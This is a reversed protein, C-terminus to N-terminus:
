WCRAVWRRATPTSASNSCRPRAAMSGATITGSWSLAAMPWRPSVRRDQANQTTTNVPIEGGVPTGNAEFVRAFVGNSSGDGASGSATSTWTVVVRGGSLVTVAADSQTSSTEVNVPVSAGLATGGNDFERLFVGRGSGDAGGQDTYVAVIGGDAKAAFEVQNQTSSTIDNVLFEDGVRVGAEDFIQAFVGNSTEGNALGDPHADSNDEWGVIFGGTPLGTVSPDSQNFETHLNVVFEPGVPDGNLDYRQGFIGSGNDQVRDQDASRWAVVYGTQAGTSDFIESVAANSQSGPVFTNVQTEDGQPVITSDAEPTVNVTIVQSGTSGGDGDTVQVVIQRTQTPGDSLNEYSLQAVVAEVAEPTANTGSLAIELPQGGTGDRQITGIVTGNVLVQTGSVSVGNGDLVGFVDQAAGEDPGRLEDQIAGSGAVRAVLISGGDLDPSDMDTLSLAGDQNFLQPAANVQSELFSVTDDVGELVPNGSGAPGAPQDFLAQFVGDRDGDGASGSTRSTWVAALTGNLLAALDPQNQTSSTESNVVFPLGDASGDATFRQATVGQGSGDIGSRDSWAVAFGGDNTGVVVPDFQFSNEVANIRFEGGQAVGDINYIQGFIGGSSSDASQWVFVFGGNPLETSAGLAAVDPGDQAGPTTTNIQREDAGSTTGDFSVLAGTSDIRQAFVGTRSGDAGGREEWVVMVDGDPLDIAKSRDQLSATTSNIQFEGAEPAGNADFVRGFIGTRSGDGADGSTQSTWTTMFRGAGLDAIQASNQTSSTEENVQFAAGVTTGDNGYIQGFVGSGNDDGGTWLVVFNGNDLGVARPQTQDGAAIDNVQFEAGVQAGQANYRQAFIGRNSSAPDDQFQSTWTVVYGGDSLAAIRPSQQDDTTFTNVQAEPSTSQEFQVFDRDIAIQARNFNSTM